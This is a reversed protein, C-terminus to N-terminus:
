LKKFELKSIMLYSFSVLLITSVLYYISNAPTSFSFLALLSGTITIPVGTFIGNFTSTNYRALRYAGCIIYLLVFGIDIIYINSLPAYKILLLLSPAVGFSILDSLSDLEKGLESSVNLLRAIRGDYRDILAAILIFAAGFIFNHKFASIISFIGFSLNAFTLLNPIWKKIM